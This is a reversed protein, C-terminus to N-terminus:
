RLTKWTEWIALADVADHILHDIFPDLLAVVSWFIDVSRSALIMDMMPAMLWEEDPHYNQTHVDNAM